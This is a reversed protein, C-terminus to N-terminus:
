PLGQQVSDISEFDVLGHCLFSNRVQEQVMSQMGAGHSGLWLHLGHSSPSPIPRCRSSIAQCSTSSFYLDMIHQM